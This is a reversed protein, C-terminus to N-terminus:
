LNENSYHKDIKKLDAYSDIEVIDEFTCERVELRYNGKFYELSVQDWYREKGGPLEYTKKIDEELQVGDKEDWYSIGYMHYVNRGGVLLKKIVKNKDTQFCWDDTMDTKVGLYNSTYQYKTILKPNYLVLDAELVYANQLLHRACMASSINNAENYEMNDIFKIQPYKYLLQDFQERLYGRVVYIDEIGAEIVADLLTDIMRVGNVRILPKPSNITLPVLRSGFGAAIFIAKKVRYPELAQIGNETIKNEEDIYGKEILSQITSNVTGLSIDSLESIDRQTYKSAQNSELITLVSFEKKNLNMNYIEGEEKIKNLLKKIFYIIVKLILNVVLIVISVFSISEILMMSELNPIMLSLPQIDRTSLFSVASITVMANVFFYSSMELITELTQPVLVDKILRWKPIGLTKAVNEYNSNLKGLANYAMLYPSAFFHITNVLVLIIIMGYIPTSKFFLVYSLGLVIGPIALSIMSILHLLKSDRGQCRATFYATVYSVTVGVFATFVAIVISNMLYEVLGMDMARTIHELSFSLNIPYKKLFMLLVFTIIPLVLVFSLLLSWISAIIDRVKNKAILYKESIYSLSSTEKQLLDIVFAIFAPIMLVLGITAGKGFDLLGIVENYMYLPLTMFKGGVMLPVGYDTFILTFVTFFVAILPKKLYPFTIRIIQSIKPIGMVNASTYVSCDEYQFVDYLMLFAVPFSYFLSGLVIGVFGYINFDIGFLNTLVGNNGLLVVLGTGHSISPILMPLTFLIVFVKKFKLNSRVIFWASIIALSIAIITATTTSLLSNIVTTLFTESQFTQLINTSGLNAFMTLLPCIITLVFFIMLFIKIVRSNINKIM